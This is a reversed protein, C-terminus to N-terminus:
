GTEHDLLGTENYTYYQDGYECVKVVELEICKFGKVNVGGSRNCKIIGGIQGASILMIVLLFVM